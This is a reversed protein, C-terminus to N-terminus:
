YGDDHRADEADVAEDNGDDNGSSNGLRVVADAVVGVRLVIAPSVDPGSQGAAQGAEGGPTGDAHDALGADNGGAEAGLTVNRSHESRHGPGATVLTAVLVAPVTGGAPPPPPTGSVETTMPSSFLSKTPMSM